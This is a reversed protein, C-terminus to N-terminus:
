ADFPSVLVPEASGTCPIVAARVLAADRHALAETYGPHDTLHLFSSRTPYWVAVVEDYDEHDCGIIPMRTDAAWLIKGGLAEIAEKAVMGYRLYANRGSLGTADRGDDYAAEDRFKNLNLMVVPGDDGNAFSAAYAEFQAQDPFTHPAPM